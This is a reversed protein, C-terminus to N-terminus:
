NPYHELRAWSMRRRMASKRRRSSGAASVTMAMAGLLVCVALVLTLTRLLNKM